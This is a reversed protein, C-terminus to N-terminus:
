INVIYIFNNKNCIYGLSATIYTINYLYSMGAPHVGPIVERLSSQRKLIFIWLLFWAVFRFIQLIKFAFCNTVLVVVFCLVM